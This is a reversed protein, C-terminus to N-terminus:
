MGKAQPNINRIQAVIEKILDDTPIDSGTDYSVAYDGIRESSVTGSVGSTNINYIQAVLLSALFEVLAPVSTEGYKYTVRWNRVGESFNLVDIDTDGNPDPYFMVRGEDPYFTYATASLTAWTLGNDETFQISTISTIPYHDLLLEDSDNGDHYENTVTQESYKKGVLEELRADAWTLWDSKILAVSIGLLDAVKQATTYNAM